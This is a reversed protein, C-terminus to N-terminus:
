RTPVNSSPLTNRTRASTRDEQFERRKRQFERDQEVLERQRRNRETESLTPAEKELKDAAAKLRTGLDTLDKERKSFETELKTQAAKAPVAERMVRESNVYGIKLEQAQAMAARRRPRSGGGPDEVHEDSHPASRSNSSRSEIKRIAKIPAGWSLRLPGVPSVWSLGIGASARVDNARIKENEGWVNGADIFSFLRLSKDNGSGPVPLYLEGNVNFRPQGRHLQRQHRPHGALRARLGAGFGPWRRLLEQLDPVAPWLGKGWGIEANLGFTFRNTIPFYQQWQLNSRLYRVDGALSLEFNARQYRGLTPAIVSDRQDRAWGITM